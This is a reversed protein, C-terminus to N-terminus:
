EPLGEARNIGSSEPRGRKRKKEEWKRKTEKRRGGWGDRPNYNRIEEQFSKKKNRKKSKRGEMRNRIREMDFARRVSANTAAINLVRAKGEVGADAPNLM